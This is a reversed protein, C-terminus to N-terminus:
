ANFRSWGGPIAQRGDTASAKQFVDDPLRWIVHLGQLPEFKFEFKFEEAQGFLQM